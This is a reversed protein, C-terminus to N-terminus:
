DPFGVTHSTVDSLFPEFEYLIEDKSSKYRKLIIIEVPFKFRSMLVTELDESVEDIILMANFSDPEHIIKELLYDVNEFGHKKAFQECRKWDENRKSLSDKIVNKIKVKSSEFSLSFELVQIAVHKLDQHRALDNEVVFIKPHSPDNLDILYGDPINQTKGKKGIRRKDDVYIRNHGFLKEKVQNVADEFDPENAYPLLEYSENQNWLM